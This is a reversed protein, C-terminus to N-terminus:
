KVVSSNVYKFRPATRLHDNLRDWTAAEVALQPCRQDYTSWILKPKLASKVSQSTPWLQNTSKSPEVWDVRHVVIDPM